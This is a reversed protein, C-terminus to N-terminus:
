TWRMEFVTTIIRTRTFVHVCLMTVAEHNDDAHTILHQYLKQSEKTLYLTQLLAPYAWQCTPSVLYCPWTTLIFSFPWINSHWGAPNKEGLAKVFKQTVDSHWEGTWYRWLWQCWKSKNTFSPNCMLTKRLLKKNLLTKLLMKVHIVHRIEARPNQWM